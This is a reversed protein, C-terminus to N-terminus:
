RRAARRTALSYKVARAGNKRVYPTATIRVGEERLEFIRAPLRQIGFRSAAEASTLTRGAKLMALVRQTQTQTM